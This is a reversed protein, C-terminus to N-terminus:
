DVRRENHHLYQHHKLAGRNPELSRTLTTLSFRPFGTLTANLKLTCARLAYSPSSIFCLPAAQSFCSLSFLVASTWRKVAVPRPSIVNNQNEKCVTIRSLIKFAFNQNVSLFLLLFNWTHINQQEPFLPFYMWFAAPFMESQISMGLLFCFRICLYNISSENFLLLLKNSASVAVSLGTTGFIVM